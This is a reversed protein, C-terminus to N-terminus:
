WALIEIKRDLEASLKATLTQQFDALYKTHYSVERNIGSSSIRKAALEEIHMPPASNVTSYVRETTSAPLSENAHGSLTLAYTTTATSSAGRVDAPTPEAAGPLALSLAVVCSIASCVTSLKM